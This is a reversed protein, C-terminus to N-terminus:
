TSSARGPPAACASCGHRVAALTNEQNDRPHHRQPGHSPLLGDPLLARRRGDHKRDRGRFIQLIDPLLAAEGQAAHLAAGRHTRHSDAHVLRLSHMYGLLKNRKWIKVHLLCDCFIDKVNKLMTKPTILSKLFRRRDEAPLQLLIRALAVLCYTIVFAMGILFPLVFNNYGSAFRESM